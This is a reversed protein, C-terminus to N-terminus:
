LNQEPKRPEVQQSLLFNTYNFVMEKNKDDLKAYELLFKLDETTLTVSPYLPKVNPEDSRKGDELSAISVDFIEALKALTKIRPRSGNLWDYVTSPYVGMLDALDNASMGREAMLEALRRKFM